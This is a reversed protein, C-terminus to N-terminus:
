GGKQLCGIDIMERSLRQGLLRASMQHKASPSSADRALPAPLMTALFLAQRRNIDNASVDFHHRAAAEIGFIGDGWEAINLYIEFLRRKSWLGDLMVSLPIELGKRIYSRGHWLFLNKSVQMTLTSAGRKPGEDDAQDIVQSLASWDVGNHTCFSADESAVVAEMLHVSIRELPVYHREVHQFTVWRWLMLTSPPSILSYLMILLVPLAIIIFTIGVIWRGWGSPTSSRRRGRKFRLMQKLRTLPMYRMLMSSSRARGMIPAQGENDKM